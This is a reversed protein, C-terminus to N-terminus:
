ANLISSFPDPSPILGPHSCLHLSRQARRFHLFAHLLGAPLCCCPLIPPKENCGDPYRTRAVTATEPQWTNGAPGQLPQPRMNGSSPSCLHMTLSPTNAHTISQPSKINVSAQQHSDRRMRMTQGKRICSIHLWGRSAGARMLATSANETTAMGGPTTKAGNKTAHGSVTPTRHGRGLSGHRHLSPYPMRHNWRHMPLMCNTATGHKSDILVHTSCCLSLIALHHLAHSMGAMSSGSYLTCVPLDLLGHCRIPTTRFSTCHGLAGRAGTDCTHTLATQESQAHM